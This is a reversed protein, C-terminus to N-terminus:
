GLRAALYKAVCVLAEMKDPQNGVNRVVGYRACLQSAALATILPRYGQAALAAALDRYDM